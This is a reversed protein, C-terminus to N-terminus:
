DDLSSISDTEVGYTHEVVIEDGNVLRITMRPPCEEVFRVKTCTCTHCVLHAFKDFTVKKVQKKDKLNIGPPVEYGYSDVRWPTYFVMEEKHNAM